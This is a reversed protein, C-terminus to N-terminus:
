SPFSKAGSKSRSTGRGWYDIFFLSAFNMALVFSREDDMVISASTLSQHAVVSQAVLEGQATLLFAFELGCLVRVM